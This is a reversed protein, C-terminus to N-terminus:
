PLARTFALGAGASAVTPVLTWGRSTTASRHASAIWYVGSAALAIGALGCAVGVPGYVQARHRTAELDTMDSAPCLGGPCADNLDAIENHRAVLLIASTALLAAGGGVAVWGGIALSENTAPPVDNPKAPQPGETPAAPQPAAASASPPPTAIALQAVQKSLADLRESAAHAIDPSQPDAAALTRAALYARYAPVPQGLGENCTGIRYEVSATDRVARVREFKDLADAFHGAEEDRLADAFLARAAPLPDTDAPAPPDARAVSATLVGCIAISKTALAARRLVRLM